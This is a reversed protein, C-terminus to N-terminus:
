WKIVFITQRRTELLIKRKEGSVESSNGNVDMNRGVIEELDDLSPNELCRGFEEM